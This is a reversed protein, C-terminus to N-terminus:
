LLFCMIKIINIYNWIGVAKRLNTYCLIPPIALSQRSIPAPIACEITPVPTRSQGHYIPVPYEGAALIRQRAAKYIGGRSRRASKRGHWGSRLRFGLLTLILRYSTGNPIKSSFTRSAESAWFSVFVVKPEFAFRPLSPTLTRQRVVRWRSLKIIGYFRNSKLRSLM